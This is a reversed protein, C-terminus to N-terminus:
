PKLASGGLLAYWVKWLVNASNRINAPCLICVLLQAPMLQMNGGTTCLRLCSCLIHLGICAGGKM